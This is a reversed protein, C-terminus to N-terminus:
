GAFAFFHILRNPYFPLLALTRGRREASVSLAASAALALEIAVPASDRIDVTLTAQKLESARQRLYYLKSLRPRKRPRSRVDVSVLLPSYAAFQYEVPLDDPKCLLRFSSGLARHHKAICVGVVRETPGDSGVDAPRHEVELIDGRDFGKMDRWPEAVNRRAVERREVEQTIFRGRKPAAKGRRRERNHM